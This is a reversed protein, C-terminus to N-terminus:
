PRKAGSDNVPKQLGSLAPVSKHFSCATVCSAL